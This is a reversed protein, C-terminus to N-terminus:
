VFIFTLRETLHLEATRSWSTCYLIYILSFCAKTLLSSETFKNLYKPEQEIRRLATAFM